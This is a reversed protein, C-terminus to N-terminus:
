RRHRGYTRTRTRTKCVASQRRELEEVPQWTRCYLPQTAETKKKRGSGQSASPYTAARRQQTREHPITWSWPKSWPKSCTPTTPSPGLILPVSTRLDDIHGRPRHRHALSPSTIPPFSTLRLHRRDSHPHLAYRRHPRCSSHPSGDYRYVDRVYRFGKEVAPCRNLRSNWLSNRHCIHVRM